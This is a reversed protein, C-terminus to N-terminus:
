LRAKLATKSNNFGGLKVKVLQNDLSNNDASPPLEVRIYNKTFGHMAKGQTTKEFLVEADTGIFHEYFALTKRESLDLLRQSRYKKDNDSVKYPISLAKTGPRESYPFVHLQTIDISELFDYTEEFYEPREGRTGVMVDVGIFANPVLKKILNVKHAFLSTDYRRHMLKLVEDSGSQLPIHYHPMFARSQSCYTILEDDLLDPEISSIRYRCIGNVKDLAKVLDIFKEGTTKGFDGINVGTLVIEKGGEEAAIEAQRVLSEITPNRSFGRAYPITCYTCFYDCGDQVKLFYRTRSGRSCSPAFTKIDKTKETHYKAQSNRQKGGSWGDSLYQILDAKENAGLVLDVGEINSVTEPKLQAYCGTVVVFAGPNERVMRHIAQRCKHDAVETVSCTNIICIDAQEGKQATRVGMDQLLRCFTSTESFNLKCGLTFYTATKGQFASTDIM